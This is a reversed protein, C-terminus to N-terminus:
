IIMYNFVISTLELYNAAYIRYTQNPIILAATIIIGMNSMEIAVKLVLVSFLYIVFLILLRYIKSVIITKFVEFISSLYGFILVYAVEFLIIYKIYCFLNFEYNRSFLVILSASIM